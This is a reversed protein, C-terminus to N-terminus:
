GPTGVTGRHPGSGASAARQRRAELEAKENELQTAVLERGDKVLGTLEVLFAALAPEWYNQASPEPRTLPPPPSQGGFPPPAGPTEM